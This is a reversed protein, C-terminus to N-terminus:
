VYVLNAFSISRDRTDLIETVVQHSGVMHTFILIDIGRDRAVSCLPQDYPDELAYLGLFKGAYRRIQPLQQALEKRGEEDFFQTAEKPTLMLDSPLQSDGELFAMAEEYPPPTLVVDEVDMDLAAADKSWYTASTSYRLWVTSEEELYYFTGCFSGGEGHYMGRSMGAAYRTVPLYDYGDQKSTLSTPTRFLAMDTRPRRSKKYVLDPAYLLLAFSDANVLANEKHYEMTAYYWHQYRSLDVTRTLTTGFWFLQEEDPMYFSAAFLDEVSIAPIDYTELHYGGHSFDPLFGQEIFFQIDGVFSVEVALYTLSRDAITAKVYATYELIDSRSKLAPHRTAEMEITPILPVPQV